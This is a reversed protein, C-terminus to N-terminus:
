FYNFIQFLTQNILICENSINLSDLMDVRSKEIYDDAFVAM